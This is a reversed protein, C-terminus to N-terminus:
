VAGRVREAARTRVRPLRAGSALFILGGIAGSVATMLWWLLGMTVAISDDVDVRTLFYLYGGERVGFGGISIPMALMLSLVPHMVLCYSFPLSTGAARALLYQVGVQSLHFIASLASIQVLLRRDRWFPALDCEVLHRFRNRVPLLRVLRPCTWWGVALAVGGAMLAVSLASPLRYEPFALLALAGLAMLIALGSVRDFVVSNLAVAANRGGGLYLARVVDGGITSVGFVNVVMGIFYFRAYEVVPRRLGVSSGVLWWKLASLVQGALFLGLPLLLDRVHVASLAARLDAHDVDYSIYTLVVASVAARLTWHVASRSVPIM